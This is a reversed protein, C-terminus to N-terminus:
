RDGFGRDPHSNTHASKQFPRPRVFKQEMVETGWQTGSYEQTLSFGHNEYLKRAADLGKFTWLHTERFEKADCFEIARRILKKGIGTGHLEEDIIFWRLHAQGSALDEGDIAISGVIERDQQVHWIANVPAALRAAFDALGGAVRTEFAAGFGAHKSYYSAHMEVIRGIIGPRYGQKITPQRGPRVIESSTRSAKLAAAYDRLGTLVTRKSRDDLSALAAVVQHEAFQTVSVLTAHGQGTLALHKRRADGPARAERVDGRDVLSRVMRSVTSKELLLTAALDKASLGEKTGIEIIAHVASPSLDTGALGQKMFGLERVLDRSATRINKVLLRSVTPM